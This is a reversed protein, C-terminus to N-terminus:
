RLPGRKVMMSPKEEKANENFQQVQKFDMNSFRQFRGEWILPVTGGEGHRNKGFIIEATGKMDTEPNYVEDRYIFMVAGADQEIAGSEKLDSMVPRKDPRGELGRSLQSLVIIPVGVTKALAKLGMSFNTVDEYRGRSAGDVGMIQLYDIFIPMKGSQRVRKKVIASIRSISLSSTEDVYLGSNTMATTAATIRPWDDSTIKGSRIAGHDVGFSSWIRSILQAIPMELSIFLAKGGHTSAHQAINVSFATKGMAPRAAIVYLEGDEFGLLRKDIGDFGSALGVMGTKNKWREELEDTAKGIYESIHKSGLSTSQQIIGNLGADTDAIIADSKTNKSDYASQITDNCLEILKRLNSKEKVIKAYSRVNSSSPTQKVMQHIAPLSYSDGDLGSSLLRESVTIADVPSGSKVLDQICYFVQANSSQYFDDGSIIAAVDDIVRNDQMMSGLISSEAELANPPVRLYDEQNNM